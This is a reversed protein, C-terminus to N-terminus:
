DDDEHNELSNKESEKAKARSIGTAIHTDNKERKQRFLITESSCRCRTKARRSQHGDSLYVRTSCLRIKIWRGNVRRLDSSQSIKKHTVKASLLRKLGHPEKGCLYVIRLSAQRNSQREDLINALNLQRKKRRKTTRRNAWNAMFSRIAFRHFLQTQTHTQARYMTCTHSFFLCFAKGFGVKFSRNFFTGILLKASQLFLQKENSDLVHVLNTLSWMSKLIAMNRVYVFSLVLSHRLFFLNWAM